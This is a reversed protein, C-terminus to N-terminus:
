ASRGTRPGDGDFSARERKATLIAIEIKRYKMM